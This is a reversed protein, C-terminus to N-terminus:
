NAFWLVPSVVDEVAVRLDEVLHQDAPVDRRSAGPVVRYRNPADETVFGGAQAAVWTRSTGDIRLV